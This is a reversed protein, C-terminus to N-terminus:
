DSMKPMMNSIEPTAKRVVEKLDGWDKELSKEVIDGVQIVEALDIGREVDVIVKDGLNLPIGSTNRYTMRKNGKFEVRIFDFIELEKNEVTNSENM